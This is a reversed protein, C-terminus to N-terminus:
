PVLLRRQKWIAAGGPHHDLEGRLGPGYLLVPVKEVTFGVEVPYPGARYSLSRRVMSLLM